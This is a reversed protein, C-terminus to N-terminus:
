NQKKQHLMFTYINESEISLSVLLSLFESQVVSKKLACFMNWLFDNYMVSHKTAVLGLGFEGNM